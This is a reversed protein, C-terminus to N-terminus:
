EQFLVTNDGSNLWFAKTPWIFSIRFSLKATPAQNFVTLIVALLEAPEHISKRIAHIIITVACVMRLKEILGGSQVSVM